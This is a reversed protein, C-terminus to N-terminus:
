HSFFNSPLDRLALYEEFPIVAFKAQDNEKIIQANDLMPQKRTYAEPGAKTFQVEYPLQSM